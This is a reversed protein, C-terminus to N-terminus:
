TACAELRNMLTKLSVTGLLTHFSELNLRRLFARVRERDQQLKRDQRLLDLTGILIRRDRGIGRGFLGEFVDQAEFLLQTYAFPDKSKLPAFFPDREWPARTLHAGWWLRALGNRSIARVRNDEHLMWRRLIVGTADETNSPVPWRERMYDYLPAHTMHVWFRVDSAGAESLTPLAMYLRAANDSDDSSKGNAKLSISAEAAVEPQVFLQEKSFKFGDKRYKGHSKGSEADSLLGELCSDSVVFNMPKSM